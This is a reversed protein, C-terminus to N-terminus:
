AVPLLVTFESGDNIASKVTVTGGHGEVIHKVISLGLGTGGTSRSRGKDVRYFREFIRSLHEIAIGIGTDTVRIQAYGNGGDEVYVDIRGRATYNIANDILNMAVQAIQSPDAQIVLEHLGHYALELGKESAKHGLQGVTLEFVEAINCDQKQGRNSEAASLVLLDQTIGSLRDVEEIIRPLYRGLTEPNPPDEDLLTEAYARIISMPTRLEHSVNAVFDQRVRELRRLNTVEFVSLFVRQGDHGIWAKAIAVRDDPPPFVVEKSQPNKTSVVERVLQELDYSLTIALISRGVPQEFRFMECSRKNAYQVNGKLDCILIAVDLGDAFSDIAQNQEHIDARLLDAEARLRVMDSSLAGSWLQARIGVLGLLLSCILFTGPAPLQAIGTLGAIGAVAAIGAAGYCAGFM